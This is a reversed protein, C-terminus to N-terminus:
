AVGRIDAESRFQQHFSVGASPSLLRTTVADGGRRRWAQAALSGLWTAAADGELRFKETGGAFKRRRLEGTRLDHRLAFVVETQGPGYFEAPLTWPPRAPDSTPADPDIRDWQDGLAGGAFTTVGLTAVARIRSGKAAAHAALSWADAFDIAVVVPAPPDMSTLMVAGPTLRVGIANAPTTAVRSLDFLALMDVADAPHRRLPVLLCPTRGGTALPAAAHARFGELAGPLIDPDLGLRRFWALVPACRAPRAAAWLQAATLCSRDTQTKAGARGEEWDIPRDSGTAAREPATRPNSEAWAFARTVASEIQARTWPGKSTAMGLGADILADLAYGRDIEGGAVLAGVSCAKAYLTENQQGPPCSRVDGCAGTLAAEGYRSARGREAVRTKMPAAPAAEVVKVLDILWAPAAAFAMEWPAHGARWAYARGSPHISPPAVIYGGDGRVDIKPGVRSASNRIAPGGPGPMAFCLHRGSGTTQEVTAPLLGFREELAALSAMGEPGDLDLVWFGAPAGTAIGINSDPWARVLRQPQPDDAKLPITVAGSWWGAVTDADTTAALLGTTRGYPKKERVQLPFVAIGAAAYRAATDALATM